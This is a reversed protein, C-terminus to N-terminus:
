IGNHRFTLLWVSPPGATIYSVIAGGHGADATMQDHSAHTNLAWYFTCCYLVTSAYLTYSQLVDSYSDSSDVM